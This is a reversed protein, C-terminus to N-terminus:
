DLLPAAAAATENAVARGRKSDWGGDLWGWLWDM